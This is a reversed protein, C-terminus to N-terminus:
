KPFSLKYTSRDSHYLHLGYKQLYEEIFPIEDAREEFLASLEEETIQLLDAVNGVACRASLFEKIVEPLDCDELDTLIFPKRRSEFVMAREAIFDEWSKDPTEKCLTKYVERIIDDSYAKRYKQIIEALWPNIPERGREEKRPMPHELSLEAFYDVIDEVDVRLGVYEVLMMQLDEHGRIEGILDLKRDDDAWLFTFAPVGLFDTRELVSVVARVVDKKISVYRDNSFFKLEEPSDPVQRTAVEVPLGYQDCVLNYEDFFFRTDRFFEELVFPIEDGDLEPRIKKWEKELKEENPCYEYRRYYEEFKDM